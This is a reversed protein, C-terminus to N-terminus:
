EAIAWRKGRQLQDLEEVEIRETGEQGRRKDEEQEFPAARRHLAVSGHAELRLPLSEVGPRSSRDSVSAKSADGIPHFGRGKPNSGLGPPAPTM